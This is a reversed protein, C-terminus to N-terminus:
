QRLTIKQRRPPDAPAGNSLEFTAAPLRHRDKTSIRQLHDFTRTLKLEYDVRM